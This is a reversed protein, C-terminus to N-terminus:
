AEGDITLLIIAAPAFAVDAAPLHRICLRLDCRLDALNRGHASNAVPECNEM